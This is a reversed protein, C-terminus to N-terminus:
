CCRGTYLIPLLGESQNREHTIGGIEIKLNTLLISILPRPVAATADAMGIRKFFLVFFHAWGSLLRALVAIHSNEPLFM